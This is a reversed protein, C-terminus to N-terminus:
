VAETERNNVAGPRPMNNPSMAHWHSGLPNTLM